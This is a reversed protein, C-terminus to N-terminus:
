AAKRGKPPKSEPAQAARQAILEYALRRAEKDRKAGKLPALKELQTDYVDAIARLLASKEAPNIPRVAMPARVVGQMLSALKGEAKARAKAPDRVGAHSDTLMNKIGMFIAHDRVNQPLKDMQVELSIEKGINILTM